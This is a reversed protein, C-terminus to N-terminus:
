PKARKFVYLRCGSGAESKLEAPKKGGPGFCIKFTDDTLEYIALMKEGKHPGKSRVAEIGKPTTASNLKHKGEIEGSPTHLTYDGGKVVLTTKEVTEAPLEKGDQTISVAQWTGTLRALDDKTGKEEATAPLAIAALAVALTLFRNM